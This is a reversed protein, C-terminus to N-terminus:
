NATGPDVQAAQAAPPQAPNDNPAVVAPLEFNAVTTNAQAINDKATSISTALDELDQADAGGGSARIDQLEKEVRAMEDTVTQNYTAVVAQYDLFAKKVDAVAQHIEAM